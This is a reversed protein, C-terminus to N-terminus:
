REAKGTHWNMEVDCLGHLAPLLLILPDGGMGILFEVNDCNAESSDYLLSLCCTSNATQLCLWVFVNLSLCFLYFDAFIYREM